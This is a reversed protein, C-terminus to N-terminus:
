SDNPIGRWGGSSNNRKRTSKPKGSKPRRPLCGQAGATDGKRRLMLGLNNWAAANQKDLTVSRRLADIAGDVDGQQKLTTGLIYCADIYEPRQAV